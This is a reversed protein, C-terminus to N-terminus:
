SLNVVGSGGGFGVNFRVNGFLTDFGNLGTGIARVVIFLTSEPSGHILTINAIQLFDDIGDFRLAPKGDLVGAQLIPRRTMTGQQSHNSTGSEDNWNAIDEGSSAPQGTANLVATPSDARLWLVAGTLSLPNFTTFGTSHAWESEMAGGFSTKAGTTVKLKYTTNDQMRGTATVRFTKKDGTNTISGAVCTKFDDSSLQVTGSCAGATLQITLTATKMEQNFVILPSENVKIDTLGNGPYVSSIAPFNAQLLLMPVSLFDDDSFPKNCYTIAGSGGLLFCLLAFCSFKIKTRELM